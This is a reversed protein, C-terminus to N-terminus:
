RRDVRCTYCSNTASRLHLYAIDPRAFLAEAYATLDAVPMSKGTGYVIRDDTNYGRVLAQPRAAVVPPLDDHGAHRECPGAHLFIPGVEAYPHDGDFPRYALLLYEEGDVIDRMCHRCPLGGDAGAMGREAPRGNADPAGARYAEAMETPMATYVFNPM